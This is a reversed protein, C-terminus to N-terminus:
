QIANNYNIVEFLDNHDCSNIVRGTSHLRVTIIIVKM